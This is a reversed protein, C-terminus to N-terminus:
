NSESVQRARDSERTKSEEWVSDSTDDSEHEGTDKGLSRDGGGVAVGNNVSSPEIPVVDLDSLLESVDAGDPSPSARRTDKSCKPVDFASSLIVACLVKTMDYM